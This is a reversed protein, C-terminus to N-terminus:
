VHVSAIALWSPPEALDIVNKAFTLAGRLVDADQQILLYVSEVDQLCQIILHSFLELVLHNLYLLSLCSIIAFVSVMGFIQELWGILELIQIFQEKHSGWSFWMLQGIVHVLFVIIQDGIVVIKFIFDDCEFVILRCRSSPLRATAIHSVSLWRAKGCVKLCDSVSLKRKELRKRAIHNRVLWFIKNIIQINLLLHNAPNPDSHVDLDFPSDAWGVNIRVVRAM